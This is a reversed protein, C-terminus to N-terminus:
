IMWDTRIVQATMMDPKEPEITLTIVRCWLDIELWDLTGQIRIEDGVDFSGLPAHQSNRIVVDSVSLLQSRRGLEMRVGITADDRSTIAKDDVVVMRRLRGDLKQAEAMIMESGEGAGLLRVHNAFDEGQQAADPMVQINEGLVFRLDTRRGGLAPYGFDLAHYVQTRGPGWWHRERYDFPTTAALKDVEAGLDHTEWWSVTYPKEGSGPTATAPDVGVRIPSSTTSDVSMLLNSGPTFEVDAWLYRVIDLPDTDWFSAAGATAHVGIGTFAMGKIYGSYGMCDLTWKSGQFQSDVVIFSGRIAGDDEAHIITGWEHLLPLGDSGVMRGYVPAITASLRPPGSLVKTIQVDMLPLETDLWDGYYDGGDTRQALYRWGGLMPPERTDASTGPDGSDQANLLTDGGIGRALVEIVDTILYSGVTFTTVTPDGLETWAGGNRRWFLRDPAGITSWTVVGGGSVLLSTLRPPLARIFKPWYISLDDLVGGPSWDTNDVYTMVLGRGTIEPHPKAAYTDAYVNEPPTYIGRDTGTRATMQALTRDFFAGAPDIQIHRTTSSLVTRVTAAQGTPIDTVKDGPQFAPLLPYYLSDPSYPPGTSARAEVLLKPYPGNSEVLFWRGDIPRRYAGGENAVFSDAMRRASGVTSTWGSGTSYTITTFNGADFNATTWRGLMWGSLHQFVFVYIFGDGGDWPSYMPRVNTDGSEYLLTPSWGAPDVGVANTIKHVCWGAEVASDSALVRMSFVILNSGRVIGGMPWAYHVSDDGIAFWQVGPARYFRMTATALDTGSQVAISDHTIATGRRTTPIGTGTTRWYTDAFLWVVRTADLPVSVASDGGLWNGTGGTRPDFKANLDPASDVIPGDILTAM